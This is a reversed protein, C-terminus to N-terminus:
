HFLAEWASRYYSLEATFFVGINDARIDNSLSEIANYIPFLLISLFSIAM